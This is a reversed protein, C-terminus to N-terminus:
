GILDNEFFVSVGCVGQAPNALDDNFADEIDYCIQTTSNPSFSFPCNEDDACGCNQATVSLSSMVFFLFILLPIRRM